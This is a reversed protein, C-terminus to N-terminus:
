ARGMVKSSISKRLQATRVLIALQIPGIFRMKRRKHRAELERSRGYKTAWPAWKGYGGTSFAGQVINEGEVALHRFASRLGKDRILSDWVSKGIQNIRKPLLDMLPVLLFSRRPIHRSVSGKEHVLGLTPNNIPNGHDDKRANQKGIIGLKVWLPEESKLNGQLQELVTLDLSVSGADTSYTKV